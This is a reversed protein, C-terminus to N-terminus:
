FYDTEIENQFYLNQPSYFLPTTKGPHYRPRRHARGGGRRPLNAGHRRQGQVANEAAQIAHVRGRGSESKFGFHNCIKHALRASFAAATLLSPNQNLNQTSPTTTSTPYSWVPDPCVRYLAAGQSCVLCM